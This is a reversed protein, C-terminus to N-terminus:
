ALGLEGSLPTMALYIYKNLLYRYTVSLYLLCIKDMLDALYVSFIITVFSDSPRRLANALSGSISTSEVWALSLLPDRINKDKPIKSKMPSIAKVNM